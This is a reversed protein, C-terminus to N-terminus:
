RKLIKNPVLKLIAKPGFLDKDNKTKLHSRKRNGFFTNYKGPIIM